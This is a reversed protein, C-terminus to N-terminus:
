SAGDCLPVCSTNPDGCSGCIGGVPLCIAPKGLRATCDADTSCSCSSGVNTVCATAGEVSTGCFCGPGCSFINGACLQTGAPCSGCSGGVCAEGAPCCVGGCTGGRCVCSGKFCTEDAQCNGDDCCEYDPICAGKCPKMGGTCRCKSHKCKGACCKDGRECKKGLKHCRAAEQAAAAELGLGALVAGLAVSALRRVIWRRSAIEALSRTLDDFRAEDM